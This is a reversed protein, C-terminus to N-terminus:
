FYSAVEVIMLISFPYKPVDASVCMIKGMTASFVDFTCKSATFYDLRELVAGLEAFAMPVVWLCVM